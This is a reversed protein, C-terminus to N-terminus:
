KFTSGLFPPFEALYCLKRKEGKIEQRVSQHIQLVKTRCYSLVVTQGGRCTSSDVLVNVIVLLILSGAFSDACYM